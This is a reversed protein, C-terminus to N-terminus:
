LHFIHHTPFRCYFNLSFVAAGSNREQIYGAGRFTGWIVDRLLATAQWSNYSNIPTFYERPQRKYINRFPTHQTLRVETVHEPFGSLTDGRLPLFSM